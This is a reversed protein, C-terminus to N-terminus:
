YYGRKKSHSLEELLTANRQIVTKSFSFNSLAVFDTIVINIGGPGPKQANIWPFSVLRCKNSLNHLNGCLHKMVYSTDPTLLCQSVFGMNPSRTEITKNLYEILEETNTTNPWPTPWLGSPWLDQYNKAVINRYIIIIQYKESNLWQLSINDLSKYFPCLKWRFINKIKTILQRHHDDSFAYFHQFDLIIFESPHASLWDDIQHLPENVESGYLGHLFYISDSNSKTALRLDLYRIGGNLQEKVSEYQNISWNFIIPKM